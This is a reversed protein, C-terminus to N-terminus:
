EAILAAAIAYRPLQARPTIVSVAHKQSYKFVSMSNFLPVFDEEVRGRSTTFQLLGGWSREWSPSLHFVCTARQHDNDNADAHFSIFQGETFCTAQAGVRQIDHAGTIHRIFRLFSESALFDVFRALLSPDTQRDFADHAIPRVGMLHSGELRKFTHAQDHLTRRQAETFGQYQKPSAYQRGIGPGSWLMLGWETRESLCRHLERAGEPRLISTIQLRGQRRFVRHLYACNIIRSLAFQAVQSQHQAFERHASPTAIRQM